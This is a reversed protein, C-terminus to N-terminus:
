LAGDIHALRAVRFARQGHDAGVGAFLRHVPQAVQHTIQVRPLHLFQRRALVGPGVGGGGRGIVRPATRQQQQRQDANRGAHGHAFVLGLRALGPDRGTQRAEARTQLAVLAQVFDALARQVVQGFVQVGVHARTIHNLAARTFQLQKAAKGQRRLPQRAFEQGGFPQRALRHCRAAQQMHAVHRGPVQFHRGGHPTGIRSFQHQRGGDVVVADIGHNFQAEVVRHAVHLAAQQFSRRFHQRRRDARALVTRAQLRQQFFGM